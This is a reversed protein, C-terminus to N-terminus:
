WPTANLFQHMVRPRDQLIRCSTTGHSCAPSSRSRAPSDFERPATTLEALPRSGTAHQAAAPLACRHILAQIFANAAGRVRQIGGYWDSSIAALVGSLPARSEASFSPPGPIRVRIDKRVGTKLVPAIAM